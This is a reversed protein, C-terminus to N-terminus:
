RWLSAFLRVAGIACGAAATACRYRYWGGTVDFQVVPGFLTSM